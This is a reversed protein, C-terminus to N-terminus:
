TFSGFVLVLPRDGIWDTLARPVAGDLDHLTVHPAPDGVQLTGKRIQRGYTLIGTVFRPVELLFAVAFILRAGLFLFIKKWVPM